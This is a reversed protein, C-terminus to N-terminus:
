ENVLENMRQVLHVRDGKQFIINKFDNVCAKRMRIRFFTYLKGFKLIWKKFITVKEIKVLFINQILVFNFIM